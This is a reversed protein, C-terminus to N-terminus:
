DFEETKESSLIKSGLTRVRLLSLMNVDSNVFQPCPCMTYLFLGLSLVLFHQWYEAWTGTTAQKLTVKM